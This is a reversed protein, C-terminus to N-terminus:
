NRLLSRHRIILHDSPNVGYIQTMGRHMGGTQQLQADSLEASAPLVLHATRTDDQNVVVNFDDPVKVDFAEKLASNPNAVLRRRFDTNEEAEAIM